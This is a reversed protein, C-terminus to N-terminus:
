SARETAGYAGVDLAGRDVPARRRFRAALAGARLGIDDFLTYIVPVALLTLLLSLSQGGVVITAMATSFGSGIGHSFVLPLMGAVFAVTTMLIPRLRHRNAELIAERRPMGQLRLQNTQDIQLISNKKVVGFLVLLGLMSFLNIQQGFLVLSLLAFPVTLPLASLITLPHLWSEFQAALILYMFVFALLFALAFAVGMKQMEKSEGTIQAQYGPAMDLDRLITELAAVAAGQDGDPTLNASVTVERERSLRNITSAGRGEEITVVDSLPVQGLTRSPVTIAGLDAADGRFTESARVFVDYQEGDELYKSTEVGGIVVALTAAVDGPDVGLASARDLDPKLMTEDVPDAASTEADVVGPVKALEAVAQSAYAELQALDPGTLVYQIKANKAGSGFDDVAQVTASTGAPLAGLADRASAMVADQSQARDAPDSLRVYIRAVNRQKQGGDGITTLTYAVGPLTRTRRAIREATVGTADLSTGAPAEVYIEFQAEDNAPLFGGGARAALTPIAALSAVSLAVIVWRRRLSFRLMAMYAREIPMYFADVARTLVSPRQQHGTAPPLFRASLMPVITFSVITSIAVAFAMTLGFSALFRGVIGDMFAVPVFVAMLSLSTALVALGIEKTAAIAAPFPKMGKEHIYRHINELVVISDDIVIGVSLALALLTMMNLTFGAWSMLAFTGVLSVPISIASILTSRVDGLFVLVVLAALLGGLVLHELVSAISTRITDSNDRVVELSVGRPLRPALEAVAARAADVTAVTNGGSQKRVALVVSSVGDRFGASEADEVGDVVEAVDRVRVAHEGRQQVVIDALHGPSAVRGMIRITTETPGRELRGAPVDANAVGIARQVELATVGAAHLRVPDLEINIRRKRGGIIQVQGVGQITELRRQVIDEAIRTLEDDPLDGKVSLMLIPVSDPDMKQVVPSDVGAPLDALVAAVRDRAEQAAEDGDKELSFQAVVTSIGESSISQLTDIGAITNIVSEIPDTVDTEVASPSAGDYMTTITVVPFDVRPFKDVGLRSYGVVGFVVIILIAVTAFVGRRVSLSALWQM